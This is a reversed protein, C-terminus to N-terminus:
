RGSVLLPRIRVCVCVCTCRAVLAIGRGLQSSSVVLLTNASQLAARRRVLFYGFGLAALILQKNGCIEAVRSESKTSAGTLSLDGTTTISFLDSSSECKAPLTLAGLEVFCVGCSRLRRRSILALPLYTVSRDDTAHSIIKASESPQFHERARCVISGNSAIWKGDDLGPAAALCQRGSKIRPLNDRWIIRRCSEVGCPV